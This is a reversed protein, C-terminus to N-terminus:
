ETIKFFFPDISPPVITVNDLKLLRQTTFNANRQYKVGNPFNANNPVNSASFIGYFDKGVALMHCYDGIYPDFVKVPSTASTDALVLDDWTTGNTSRQVRTVWRSSRLQQYLFAIKGANNIALAGNTANPVTLLDAASWTVGRDLSRRVHLTLFAAGAPKDGWVLYVTSSNLPSVAISLSGGIRQQGTTANGNRMFPLSIGAVVRKGAFGDPDILATYPNPSNGGNDDRVVVVDASTVVLTNSPFSGTLARWRYFAAYVTGDSHAVPRTQPGDQGATTRKEVRITQFVPAALGGDLSQDITATKGGIGAFDNSGIYVRDKGGNTTAHTFPQDANPRSKLVAMPPPTSFTSTRLFQMAGSNAGSGVRLISGYLKSANGNFSTTIDGTPVTSGAQSPVISNLVWTNGGDLSVFIPANPGLSPDPTFATGVIQRPNAPNVTLHPESDQNTEASLAKPIMNILFVSASPAQGAVGAKKAAKASKKASAKKSAAKTSAAKKTAKKAAM